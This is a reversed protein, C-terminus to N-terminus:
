IPSIIYNPLTDDYIKVDKLKKPLFFGGSQIKQMNIKGNQLIFSMNKNARIVGNNSVDFGSIASFKIGKIICFTKLIIYSLKIGMFSGPGNTYIIHTIDFKKLALQLIEPLCDGCKKDSKFYDILNGNEYIGVM